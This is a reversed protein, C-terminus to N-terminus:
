WDFSLDKHGLGRRSKTGVAKLIASDSGTGFQNQLGGVEVKVFLKKPLTKKSNPAFWSKGIEAPILVITEGPVQVEYYERSTQKATGPYFDIKVIQGELEFMNSAVEETSLAKGAISPHEAFCSSVSVILLLVLFSHPISKM